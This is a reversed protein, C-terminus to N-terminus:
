KRRKPRGGEPIAVLKDHMLTCTGNISDGEPSTIIVTDGESQGECVEFAEAPPQRRQREEEAFVSSTSFSIVLSTLVMITKKM